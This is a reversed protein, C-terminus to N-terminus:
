KVQFLLARPSGAVVEIEPPIVPPSRM